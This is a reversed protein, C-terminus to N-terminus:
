AVQEGGQLWKIAQDKDTFLRLNVYRNQAVNEVFQMHEKHKPQVVVAHSTGPPLESQHQATFEFDDVIPRMGSLGTTDVLLKVCDYATLQVKMESRAAKLEEDTPEGSLTGMVYDAEEVYVVDYPM